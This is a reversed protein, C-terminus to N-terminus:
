VPIDQRIFFSLSTPTPDTNYMWNTTTMDANTYQSSSNSFVGIYGLHGTDYCSYGSQNWGAHGQFVNSNNDGGNWCWGNTDSGDLGASGGERYTSNYVGTNDSPAQLITIDGRACKLSTDYSTFLEKFTSKGFTCTNDLIALAKRTGNYRREYLIEADAFPMDIWAESKYDEYPNEASGLTNDDSWYGFQTNWNNDDNGYITGVMTWGGGSTTMDCYALYGTGADPNIYYTGDGNSLGNDLIEKCSALACDPTSGDATSKNADNDDCDLSSEVGDCDNDTNQAGANADNDNCDNWALVGDSDQDIVTSFDICYWSSTLGDFSLIQGDTCDLPTTVLIQGALTTDEHLDIGDNNVFDEVESESLQTNDDGDELGTPLTNPDISTWPITSSETLISGEGTISSGAALAISDNVIFNEVDTETLVNDGDDLGNPISQPDIENWNM